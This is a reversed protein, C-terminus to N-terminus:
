FMSTIVYSYRVDDRRLIAASYVTHGSFLSLVRAIRIFNPVSNESYIQQLIVYVNEVEGNQRWM